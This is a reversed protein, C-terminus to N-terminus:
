LILAILKELPNNPVQLTKGNPPTSDCLHPSDDPHLCTALHLLSPPFARLHKRARGSRPSRLKESGWDRKQSIPILLQRELSPPWSHKTIHNSKRSPQFQKVLHSWPSQLSNDLIIWNRQRRSICYPRSVEYEYNPPSNPPPFVYSFPKSNGRQQGKIFITQKEWETIYTEHVWKVSSSLPLHPELSTLTLREPGGLGDSPKPCSDASSDSAFGGRDKCTHPQSYWQRDRLPPFLADKPFM